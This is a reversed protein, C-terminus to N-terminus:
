EAASDAGSASILIFRSRDKTAAKARTVVIGRRGLLPTLRTLEGSLVKANIPFQRGRRPPSQGQLTELLQTATGSWESRRGMLMIIASGVEDLDLVDGSAESINERYAVMFDGPKWHATEIATGWVAFDAMRPLDEVVTTPLRSLGHAVVDLLGAMIAPADQEFRHWFAAETIRAAPPIPALEIFVARDALDARSIVNVIGNILIPRRASLVVEEADTFLRRKGDEEGTALRALWDSIANLIVSVNDFALLHSHLAAVDLDSKKSPLARGPATGGDVLRRLVKSVTSKSSGQQGYIMLVPYPGIPRLSATLWAVVLLFQGDTLNLHRRLLMVNGIGAPMPLPKSSRRFHVEPEDVVSYGASTVSIARGAADGLDICIGDDIPATRLYMEKQPAGLAKDALAQLVASFHSKRLFRKEEGFFRQRAMAGFEASRLNMVQPLGDVVVSAYSQGDARFLTVDDELLALAFEADGVRRAAEQKQRSTLPDDPIQRGDSLELM